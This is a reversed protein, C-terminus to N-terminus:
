RSGEVVFMLGLALLGGDMGWMDVAAMVVFIWGVMRVAFSIM